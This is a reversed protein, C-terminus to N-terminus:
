LKGEKFIIFGELNDRESVTVEAINLARMIASLLLTGGGMIESSQACITTAKIHEVDETLLWTALRDVEALSLVTGDTIEPAYETLNHRVAALRTATGGISYMKFNSADIKGYEAVKEDIISQLATRDRKASDFLRVAGINVSKAYVTKCDKRLTIEASAGGIDIIGGDSSGLAGLIGCEAEEEGSLVCIDLGCLEKVRKLFDRGNTATRVAATAFAYVKEAGDEIAQRYFDNVALATRELANPSLVSSKDLGEGLRTTCLRKYLTKGGEFTALRVSNSGIDIASIKM